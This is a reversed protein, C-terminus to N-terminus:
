RVERWSLLRVGRPSRAVTAEIIRHAGASEFAEARLALVGAGPNAVGGGDVGPDDDTEAPDDGVWVVVYATSEIAAAADLAAIPGWVYPTWRPNNVGWPRDTTSANMEAVTCSAPHGCNAVNTAAAVDLATGDSLRRPSLADTFSSPAAGSLVSTFDPAGGLDHLARELGAEASHLGDIAAAHNASIGLETTVVLALGLALASILAMTLLSVVLAAGREGGARSDPREPM